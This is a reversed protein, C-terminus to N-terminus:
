IFNDYIDIGRVIEKFTRRKIKMEIYFYVFLFLSYYKDSDDYKDIDFITLIRMLIFYVLDDDNYDLNEIYKEILRKRNFTTKISAKISVKKDVIYDCDIKPVHNFVHEHNKYSNKHYKPSFYLDIFLISISFLAIEAEICNYGSTTFDMFLPKLGINMTNLDGHSLVCKHIKNKKFYVNIEDFIDQIKLSSENNIIFNYDIWNSYFYKNLRSDIRNEYFKQMPYKCNYIYKKYNKLIINLFKYDIETDNKLLEDCLLGENVNISNDYKYVIVGCNNYIFLDCLNPVKFYNFITFYGVLESYFNNIDQIKFFFKKKDKYAIGNISNNQVNVNNITYDEIKEFKKLDLNRKIKINDDFIDEVKFDLIKKSIKNELDTLEEILEDKKSSKKLIYYGLVELIEIQRKLMIDMKSDFFINKSKYLEVKKRNIFENIFKIILDENDNYLVKMLKISNSKIINEYISFLKYSIMKPGFFNYINNKKTKYKSYISITPEKDFFYYKELYNHYMEDIYCNNMMLHKFIKINSSDGCIVNSSKKDINLLLMNSKIAMKGIINENKGQTKIIAVENDKLKIDSISKVKQINRAKIGLNKLLERYPLYYINELSCKSEDISYYNNAIIYIPDIEFYKVMNYLCSFRCNIYADNFIDKKM